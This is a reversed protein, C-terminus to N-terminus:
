TGQESAGYVYNQFSWQLLANSNYRPITPTDHPIVGCFMVFLAVLHQGVFGNAGNKRLM